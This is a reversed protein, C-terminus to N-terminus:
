SRKSQTKLLKEVDAMTKPSGPSNDTKLKILEGERKAQMTFFLNDIQGIAYSYELSTKLKEKFYNEQEDKDKLKLKESVESVDSKYEYVELQHKICVPQDAMKASFQEIMAMAVPDLMAAYNAGLPLDDLMEADKQLQKIMSNVEEIANQLRLQSQSFNFIEPPIALGLEQAKILAAAIREGTSSQNGLALIDTFIQTLKDRNKQYLTEDGGSMKYLKHFGSRFDSVVGGSAALMM